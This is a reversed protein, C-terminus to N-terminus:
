AAVEDAILDSAKVDLARAILVLNHVTLTDLNIQNALTSRAIGTRRALEVMTVRQRGMEARVAAGIDLRLKFNATLNTPAPM